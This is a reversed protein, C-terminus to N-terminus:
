EPQGLGSLLGRWLAGHRGLGHGVIMVVRITGYWYGIAIQVTASASDSDTVPMFTVMCGSGRGPRVPSHRQM